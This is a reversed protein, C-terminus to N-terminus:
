TNKSRMYDYLEGKTKIVGEFSGFGQLHAKGVNTILAFDPEVINVLSRIDGPHSAGMEIVAIEHEKTLRLLTKPVGIENNFNGLTYLVKYKEALVAALM